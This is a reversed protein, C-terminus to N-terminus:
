MIPLDDIKDSDWSQGAVKPIEPPKVFSPYQPVLVAPEIYSAPQAEEGVANIMDQLTEIVEAHTDGENLVWQMRRRGKTYTFEVALNDDNVRMVLESLLTM